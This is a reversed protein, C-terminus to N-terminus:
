SKKEFKMPSVDRVGPVRRVANEIRTRVRGCRMGVVGLAITEAAREVEAAPPEAPEDRDVRADAMNMVTQAM